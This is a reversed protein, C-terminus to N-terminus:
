RFMSRISNQAKDSLGIAVFQAVSEATVQWGIIDDITAVQDFGEIKANWLESLVENANKRSFSAPVILVHEEKVWACPVGRRTRVQAAFTAGIEDRNDAKIHLAALPYVKLDFQIPFVDVFTTM